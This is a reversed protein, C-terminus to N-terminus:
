RRSPTRVETYAFSPREGDTYRADDLMTITTDGDRRFRAFPFRAWGLFQRGQVDAKGKADAGKGLFSTKPLGFPAGSADKSSRACISCM